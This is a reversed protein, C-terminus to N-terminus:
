FRPRLVDDDLVFLYRAEARPDRSAAVPGKDQGIPYLCLLAAEDACPRITRDGGGPFLALTQLTFNVLVAIRQGLPALRALRQDDPLQNVAIELFMGCLQRLEAAVILGGHQAFHDFRGPPRALHCVNLM